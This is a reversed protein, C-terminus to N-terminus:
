RYWASRAVVAEREPEHVEQQPKEIKAEADMSVSKDNAKSQKTELELAVEDIRQTIVSTARKVDMLTTKIFSPSEKLSDLWSKLYAASDDKLNKTMGYRQAVLASGM